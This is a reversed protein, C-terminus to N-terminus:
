IEMARPTADRLEIEPFRERLHDALLDFYLRPVGCGGSRRAFTVYLRNEALGLLRLEIGEEDLRRIPHAVHELIFTPVPALRLEPASDDFLVDECHSGCRGLSARRAFGIEQGLGSVLGDLAERYWDCVRAGGMVGEACGPSERVVAAGEARWRGALCPVGRGARLRDAMEALRIPGGAVRAAGRGLRWTALYVQKLAEEWRAERLEVLATVEDSPPEGEYVKALASRRARTFRDFLDDLPDHEREAVKAAHNPKAPEPRAETSQPVRGATDPM